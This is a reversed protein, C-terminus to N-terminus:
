KNIRRWEHKTKGDADLLRMRERTLELIPEEVRDGKAELIVKVRRAPRGGATRKKLRGDEISWAIDFELRSAFIAKVGSLKAIIIGTGDERLTMTQKAQDGNMWTGVVLQRWALDRRAHDDPKVEGGSGSPAVAGVLWLALAIELRVACAPRSGFWNYLSTRM